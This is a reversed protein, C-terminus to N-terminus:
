NLPKKTGAVDVFPRSACDARKGCKPCYVRAEGSLNTTVASLVVPYDWDHKCAWCSHTRLVPRGDADTMTKHTPQTM